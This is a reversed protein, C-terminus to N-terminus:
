GSNIYSFGDYKCVEKKHSYPYSGNINGPFYIIKGSGRINEPSFIMTRMNKNVNERSYKYDVNKTLFAEKIKSNDVVQGNLLVVEATDKKRWSVISMALCIMTTIIMKFYNKLKRMYARRKVMGARLVAACVGESVPLLLRHLAIM